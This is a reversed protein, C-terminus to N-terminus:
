ARRRHCRASRCPGSPGGGPHPLRVGSESAATDRDACWLDHFRMVERAVDRRRVSTAALYRVVSELRPWDPVSRGNLLLGLTERSVPAPLDSNGSISKAAARTSPRGADTYLGHLALVLDRREGAPVRDEGPMMIAVHRGAALRASM